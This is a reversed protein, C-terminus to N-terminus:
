GNYPGNAKIWKVNARYDVFRDVKQDIWIWAYLYTYLAMDYLKSFITIGKM